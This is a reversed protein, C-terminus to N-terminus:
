DDRLYVDGNPTVDEVGEDDSVDWSVDNEDDPFADDRTNWDDVWAMRAHDGANPGTGANNEVVTGLAADSHEVIANSTAENRLTEM